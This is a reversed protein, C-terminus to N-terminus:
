CQKSANACFAAIRSVTISRAVVHGCLQGTRIGNEPLYADFDNNESVVAHQGAGIRAM